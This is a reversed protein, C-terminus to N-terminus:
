EDREAQWTHIHVASDTTGSGKPLSQLFSEVLEEQWM